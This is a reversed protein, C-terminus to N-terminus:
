RVEQGAVFAQLDVLYFFVRGGIKTSRPGLGRYKWNRITREALGLYEAAGRLSVRGDPTPRYNVTEPM